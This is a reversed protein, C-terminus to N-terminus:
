IESKTVESGIESDVRQWECDISSKELPITGTLGMSRDPVTLGAAKHIVSETHVGINTAMFGM